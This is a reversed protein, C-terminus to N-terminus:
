EMRQAIVVDVHTLVADLNISLPDYFCSHLQPLNM